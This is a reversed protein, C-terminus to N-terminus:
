VCSTCDDVEEGKGWGVGLGCRWWCPPLYVYFHVSLVCMCVCCVCVSVACLCVGYVHVYKMREYMCVCTAVCLSVHCASM